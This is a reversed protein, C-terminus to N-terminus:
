VGREIDQHFSMLPEEVVQAAGLGEGLRQAIGQPEPPDVGLQAVIEPHRALHVAGDDVALAGQGQGCREPMDAELGPHMEDQTPGIVVRSVIRPGDLTKFPIYRSELPLQEILAKACIAADRYDGPGPQAEAVGFATRERLPEGHGFVPEPDGLGDIMGEAQNVRATPHAKQIQALPVHVPGDRHQLSGQTQALVPM